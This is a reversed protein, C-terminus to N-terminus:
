FARIARVAGIMNKENHNITTSNNFNWAWGDDYQSSSWTWADLSIGYMGDIKFLEKLEGISPLFWDTFTTSGVTVSKAVCRQTAQESDFLSLYDSVIYTDKRGNGIISAESDGTSTFTTVGAILSFNSPSATWTSTSQNASAAEMYHATYAAFPKTTGSYGEVPFGAKSLYFIVGGAPGTDGIAKTLRIETEGCGSCTKTDVGWSTEIAWEGWDHTHVPDDDGGSCATMAVVLMAMLIVSGITTLKKM